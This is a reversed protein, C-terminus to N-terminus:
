KRINMVVNEQIGFMRKEDRPTAHDYGLLHLMGHTVLRLIEEAFPVARQNAEKKAYAPAILIDGWNKREAGAFSLVDTPRRHGRYRANLEAIKRDSVFVVSVSGQPAHRSVRFVDRIAKTIQAESISRPITGHMSIEIM